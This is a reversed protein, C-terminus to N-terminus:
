IEPILCLLNSKQIREAPMLNKVGYRSLNGRQRSFAQRKISGCM